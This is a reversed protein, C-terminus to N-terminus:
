AKAAKIAKLISIAKSGIQALEALDLDKAELVAEDLGSVAALLVEHKQALEVVAPVDSVSIKGDAAIKAAAVGVVEVGELAESIEKIGKSEM